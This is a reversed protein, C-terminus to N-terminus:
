FENVLPFIRVANGAKELIAAAVFAFAAGTVLRHKQGNEEGVFIFASPVFFEQICYIAPELEVVGM